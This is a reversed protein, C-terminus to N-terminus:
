RYFRPEAVRLGRNARIGELSLRTLAALGRYFPHGAQEEVIALFHPAWPLLHDALYEDLLEPRERALWAMLSLMTGVHDEPEAEQGLRRVGRARMWQRLALTAEGFVVSERDTYVSGWPPAAKPGPAVFLRRYEWTLDDDVGDALGRAVEALASGAAADAVLDAGAYLPNALASVASVRLAVAALAIVAGAVALVAVAVKLPSAGLEAGCGAAGLTLAGLAMGGALAFGLLQAPVAPTNWSAITDMVYAMGTFVAFVLGLLAVAVVLGKRAGEPLKGALAAIWYVLMLVCFVCGVVIENSLPSSGVGAFVGFANLPSALHFFSAIFGVIVFAAPLATMRDIRKLREADFSTTLLAVALAAFASAGIPALTSFLALPMESFAIEM